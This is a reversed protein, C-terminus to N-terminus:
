YGIAAAAAGLPPFLVSSPTAVAGAVLGASLFLALPAQEIGLLSLGYAAFGFAPAAAEPRVLQQLAPMLAAATFCAAALGLAAAGLLAPIGAAMSFSVSVQSALTVAAAAILILPLRGPRLRRAPPADPDVADALKVPLALARSAAHPMAGSPAHKERVRANHGARAM